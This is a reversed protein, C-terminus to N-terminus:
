SGGMQQVKQITGSVSEGAKALIQAQLNLTNVQVQLELFPRMGSPVQRMLRDQKLVAGDWANVFGDVLSRLSARELKTDEAVEKFGRRDHPRGKSQLGRASEGIPASGNLATAHVKM